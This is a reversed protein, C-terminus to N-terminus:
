VRERCSARGIKRGELVQRGDRFYVTVTGSPEDEHTMDARKTIAYHGVCPSLPYKAIQGKAWGAGHRRQPGKTTNSM